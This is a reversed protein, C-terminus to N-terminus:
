SSGLVWEAKVECLVFKNSDSVM